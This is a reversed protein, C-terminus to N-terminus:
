KYFIKDFDNVQKDFRTPSLGTFRKFERIFHSQDYYLEYIDLPHDFAIAQYAAHFRLVSCLNKPSIGLKEDFKMNLWRSSYGTESELQKIQVMGNSSRIRNVCYEFITDKNGAFTTLLYQQILIVKNIPEPENAIREEIERAMRGTVDTLAHIRNHIDSQRFNFFRNVGLPTFEVGITGSEADHQVDVISPLDCIGILTISNEKSLHEWGQMKGSLGNCFPIVLKPLGNPVILKMDEDPIRESSRFIWLKEVYGHLAPHVPINQLSMM